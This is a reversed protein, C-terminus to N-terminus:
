WPLGAQPTLLEAVALANVPAAGHTLVYRHARDPRRGPFGMEVLVTDPRGSLLEESAAEIWAHRHLDRVVLVLPRSGAAALIDGVPPRSEFRLVETQPARERLVDGLGWPVQGVPIGPRPQLEVMVPATALKTVGASRLARRAAELGVSGDVPGAESRRSAAWRAVVALRERSEVLREEGLRGARVAGVLGAVISAVVEEDVLRAGVCLADAGAALAQVAGEVVGVSSRIAAMELADTVVLGRFGMRERLLDTLIVRSLTAPVADWAPILIHATMIAQVGSAIAERFPLLASELAEPAAEVLPLDLHSDVATDGHGPFHKACAAVGAGQLGAIFAGTHAAVLEAEAGFSRVGIVPNDPNSNVDAVPALDLNVGAAALEAGISAAVSRTLGPDGAAGLALNGPYPSGTRWHLRTVDGGEEDIGILVDPQVGRLRSTLEALRPANEVNHSFLVVGGLGDALRRLLWDPAQSGAFGPLLCGAALRRLTEESM